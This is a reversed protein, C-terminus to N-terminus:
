YSTCDSPRVTSSVLSSIGMFTGSNDDNSERSGTQISDSSNSDLSPKGLSKVSEVTSSFRRDSTCISGSDLFFIDPTPLKDPQCVPRDSISGLASKTTSFDNPEVDM